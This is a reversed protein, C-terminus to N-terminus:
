TPMNTWTVYLLCSDNHHFDYLSIDSNGHAFCRTLYGIAVERDTTVVCSSGSESVTRQISDPSLGRKHAEVLILESKYCDNLGEIAYIFQEIRPLNLEEREENSAPLTDAEFFRITELARQRSRSHKM